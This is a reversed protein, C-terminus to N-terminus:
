SPMGRPHTRPRGHVRLPQSFSVLQLTPQAHLAALMAVSSLHDFAGAADVSLVTTCPDDETAIRVVRALAETGTRTCIGFKLPLCAQQLQASLTQAMVRGVLCQLVDGVVTQM